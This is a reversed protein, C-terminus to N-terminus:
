DLAGAVVEVPFLMNINFSLPGNAVGHVVLTIKKDKKLAKGALVLKAQDIVPAYAINMFTVDGPITAITGVGDVDLSLNT